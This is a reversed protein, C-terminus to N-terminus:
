YRKRKVIDKELTHYISRIFLNPEACPGVTVSKIPIKEAKSKGYFM